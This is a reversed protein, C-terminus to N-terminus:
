VWQYPANLNKYLKKNKRLRRFLLGFAANKVVLQESVVSYMIPAQVFFRFAGDRRAQFPPEKSHGLPPIPTM